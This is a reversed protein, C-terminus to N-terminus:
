NERPPGFEGVGDQDFPPVRADLAAHLEALRPPPRRRSLRFAQIVAISLTALSAVVADAVDLYREYALFVPAAIDSQGGGPDELRHFARGAGCGTAGEGRPEDAVLRYRRERIRGAM